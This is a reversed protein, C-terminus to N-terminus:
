PFLEKYVLVATLVALIVTLWLLLRSYRDASKHFADLSSTLRRAVEVNVMQSREQGSQAQAVLEKWSLETLDPAEAM